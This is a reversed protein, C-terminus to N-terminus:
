EDLIPPPTGLVKYRNERDPEPLLNMRDSGLTDLGHDHIGWADIFGNYPGELGFLESGRWRYATGLAPGRATFYDTSFTWDTGPLRKLGFVQYADWDVLFQQGFIHDSKFRAQRIYFNSQEVDNKIVPWYFVPVNQVYILNNRSTVTRDHQMVAEGSEPNVQPQKTAPDVLPVENDEFLMSKAQLRYGPLALRSSTFYANTAVFRGPGTQQLVDAKLRMLGAFKPVPSLIEAALVTGIQHQVDYYMRQAYITREGQRFVINGEMYIELPVNEPQLTEGSTATAGMTWIVINDASIDLAGFNPLNDIIVNVGRRLQIVTENKAPDTEARVDYPVRSRGFFQIRRLGPAPGGPSGPTDPGGPNTNQAVLIGGSSSGSFSGPVTTSFGGPVSAQAQKVQSDDTGNRRALARRYIAPKVLPEPGIDAVGMTIPGTSQFEGLWTKDVLGNTPKQGPQTPVLDSGVVVSGSLYAIVRNTPTAEEEDRKIWVVAEEGSARLSGQAIACHGRMVWVEHAGQQWHVAQDADIRIVAAPDAPPLDVNMEALACRQGVLLALSLM